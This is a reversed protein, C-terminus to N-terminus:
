PRATPNDYQQKTKHISSAESIAGVAYSPAVVAQGAGSVDGSVEDAMSGITDADVFLHGVGLDQAADPPALSLAPLPGEAEALVAVGYTAMGEAADHVAGLLVVVASVEDAGAMSTTVLTANLPNAAAGAVMAVFSATPIMAVLRDPHDTFALVAPDLGTLILLYQEPAAPDPALTAAAFRQVFLWAAGENATPTARRAATRQVTATAGVGASLLSGLVQRRGARAPLPSGLRDSWFAQM